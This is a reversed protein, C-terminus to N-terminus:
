SFFMWFMYKGHHGYHGEGNIDLAQMAEVPVGDYGLFLRIFMIKLRFKNFFFYLKYERVCQEFIFFFKLFFQYFNVVKIPIVGAVQVLSLLLDVMVMFTMTSTRILISVFIIIIICM